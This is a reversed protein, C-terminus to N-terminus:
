RVIYYWIMINHNALVHYKKLFSYRAIVKSFLQKLVCKLRTTIM